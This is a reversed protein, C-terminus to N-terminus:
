QWAWVPEGLHAVRTQRNHLCVERFQYVMAATPAHLADDGMLLRIVPRTSEPIDEFTPSDSRNLERFTIRHIRAVEDTNATMKASGGAWVVIPTILYGSQTQYDDLLGLVADEGLDLDVEERMERLAAQTPTEGPDIRGGPLAFQGGHSNLKSTRRTLVYAGERGDEACVVTLAVAAHKLATSSITTRQFYDLNAAIRARMIANYLYHSDEM